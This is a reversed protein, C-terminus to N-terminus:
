AAHPPAPPRLQTELAPSSPMRDSHAHVARPVERTQTELLHPATLAGGHAHTCHCVHVSHKPARDGPTHRDPADAASIVVIGGTQEPVNRASNGVGFSAAPALQGVATVAAGDVHPLVAAAIERPADGDCADALLPEVCGVMLVM